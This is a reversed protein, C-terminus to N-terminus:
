LPKLISVRYLSQDRSWKGRYELGHHPHVVKYRTNGNASKASLVKCDCIRASCTVGSPTVIRAHLYWSWFCVRGVNRNGQHVRTQRQKANVPLVIGVATLPFSCPRMSVARRSQPDAMRHMKPINFVGMQQTCCIRSTYSCGQLPQLPAAAHDEPLKRTGMLWQRVLGAFSVVYVAERERKELPLMHRSSDSAM